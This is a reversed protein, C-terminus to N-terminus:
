QLTEKLAAPLPLSMVDIGEEILEVAERQTTRGRISRAEVEGYHMARAQHAFKDGVDETNALVHRVAHLFAAQREPSPVEPAGAVTALGTVPEAVASESLVPDSAQQAKETPERHGGFNLRPASPMKFVAKDACLPCEVLGRALQSQFDDESGFWGEFSHRQACQLNLVKMAQSKDRLM